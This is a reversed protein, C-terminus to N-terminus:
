SRASLIEFGCCPPRSHARASSMDQNDFILHKDGEFYLSQEGLEAESTEVEDVGWRARRGGSCCM